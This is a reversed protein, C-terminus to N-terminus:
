KRRSSWTHPENLVSMDVEKPEVVTVFAGDSVSDVGTTVLRDGPSVGELVVSTSGVIDESLRVAQKRVVEKGDQSEVRFVHKGTNTVMVASSPVVVADRITDVRLKVDLPQNPFLAGDANEFVAKMLVTGTTTDITNDIVRVEGRALSTKKKQDLAEVPLSGGSRLTRALQAAYVQPVSFKVAIPTTETLTVIATSGNASVINGVDVGRLGAYGSIPATIKGYGINVEVAAIQGEVAKVAGEYQAVLAAQSDLDQQAISNRKALTRYRTLIARADRLQAKNQALTGQYQLLTAEYDRTDITALLAGKEVFSGEEFFLGTLEGDIQSVVSVEQNAAATGLATVIVPVDELSATAVQVAAKRSMMAGTMGPPMGEPASPAAANEKKLLKAVFPEAQPLYGQTYLGYCAACAAALVAAFILAKKM